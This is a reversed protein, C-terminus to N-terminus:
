LSAWYAIEAYRWMAINQGPRGDPVAKGMYTRVEPVWKTGAARDFQKLHVHALPATEDYAGALSHTLAHRGVDPALRLMSEICLANHDQDNWEPRDDRYKWSRLSTNYEYTERKTVQAQLLQSMGPRYTIGAEAAQRVFLAAGASINHICMGKAKPNPALCWGPKTSSPGRDLRYVYDLVRTVTKLPVKGAKYGKLLFPGVHQTTTVAHSITTDGFPNGWGGDKHQAALVKSLYKKATPTWGYNNVIAAGTYSYPFPDTVGRDAATAKILADQSM